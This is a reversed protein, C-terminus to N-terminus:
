GLLPLLLQLLARLRASVGVGPLRLQTAAPVTDM